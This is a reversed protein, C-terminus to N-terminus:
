LSQGGEVTSAASYEDVGLLIGLDSTFDPSDHRDGSKGPAGPAHGDSGRGAPEPGGGWGELLHGESTDGLRHAAAASQVLLTNSSLPSPSPAIMSLSPRVTAVDMMVPNPVAVSSMGSGMMALDGIAGGTGAAKPAEVSGRRSSVLFSRALSARDFVSRPNGAMVADGSGGRNGVSHSRILDQGDIDPTPTPSSSSSSSSSLCRAGDTTNYSMADTIATPTAQRMRPKRDIVAFAQSDEAASAAASMESGIALPGNSARYLRAGQSELEGALREARPRKGRWTGDQGRFVGAPAEPVFARGQGGNAQGQAQEHQQRVHPRAPWSQSVPPALPLTPWTMNDNSGHTGNGPDAPDRGWPERPSNTTPVLGMRGDGYRWQEVEGGYQANNRPQRVAQVPEATMMESSGTLFLGDTLWGQGDSSSTVNAGSHGRDDDGGGNVGDASIRKRGSRNEEVDQQSVDGGFKTGCVRRGDPTVASANVDCAPAVSAVGRRLTDSSDRQFSDLEIQNQSREPPLGAIDDEYRGMTAATGGQPRPAAVDDGRGDSRASALQWMGAESEVAAVAAAAAAHTTVRGVGALPKLDQGFPSSSSPSVEVAAVSMEIPVRQTSSRDRNSREAGAGAAGPPPPRADALEKRPIAATGSTSGAGADADSAPPTDALEVRRPSKEVAEEKQAKANPITRVLSASIRDGNGNGRSENGSSGHRRGTSTGEPGDPAPMKMGLLKRAHMGCVGLGCDSVSTTAEEFTPVFKDSM